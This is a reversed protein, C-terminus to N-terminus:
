VAEHVVESLMRPIRPAIGFGAMENLLSSPAVPKECHLNAGAELVEGAREEFSRASLIAIFLGAHRPDARLQQLVDLGSLKPMVLDLLVADPAFQEIKAMAQEGDHAVAVEYGAKKLVFELFRAIHREDDVVLVRAARMSDANGTQM